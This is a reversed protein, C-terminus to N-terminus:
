QGVVATGSIDCTGAGGRDAGADVGSRGGIAGASGGPLEPDGDSVTAARLGAVCQVKGQNRGGAVGIDLFFQLEADGRRSEVATARLDGNVGGAAEMSDTLVGSM